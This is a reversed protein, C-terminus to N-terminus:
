PEILKLLTEGKAIYKTAIQQMKDHGFNYKDYIGVTKMGAKVATEIAVLSDEFVWTKEPPVNFYNCASLFADPFEKGKGIEACSIVTQFYEKIGCHELAMIIFEPATASVICMKAGTNKLHDLFEKVGKKLEVKNKYFNTMSQNALSLLQDANQGINYKEHILQMADKLTLTRVKKDVEISPKFNSNNLYKEGLTSWMVDWLMLSDVLTGDMDFIATKINM